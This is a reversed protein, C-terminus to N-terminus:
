LLDIHLNFVPSPYALPCCFNLRWPVRFLSLHHTPVSLKALAVPRRHIVWWSCLVWLSSNCQIAIEWWSVETKNVDWGFSPNTTFKNMGCLRRVCRWASSARPGMEMGRLERPTPGKLPITGRPRLFRTGKRGGAYGRPLPKKMLLSSSRNQFIRLFVVWTIMRCLTFIRNETMDLGIDRSRCFHFDDFIVPIRRADGTLQQYFKLVNQSVSSLNDYSM